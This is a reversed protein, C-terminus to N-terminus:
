PAETEGRWEVYCADGRDTPSRHEVLMLDVRRRAPTLRVVLTVGRGEDWFGMTWGDGALADNSQYVTSGLHLRLREGDVEVTPRQRAIARVWVTFDSRCTREHRVIEGPSDAVRFSDAHAPAALAVVIAVSRM